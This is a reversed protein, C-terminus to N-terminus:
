VALCDSGGLEQRDARDEFTTFKDPKMRKERPPVREYGPAPTMGFVLSPYAQAAIISGVVVDAGNEYAEQAVRSGENTGTFRTRVFTLGDRMAVTEESVTATIVEDTVVGLPADWEDDLFCIPHRTANLIKVGKPLTKM